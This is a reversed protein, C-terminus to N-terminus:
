VRNLSKKIREKSIKFYKEDIEVGIFNRKLEVAAVGCSGVGMFPDLVVGNERSAIKILHKLLKVPKQAPHSPNKVRESGMCKPSEYFNHMEKQSLFNWEHGRNWMCVVFECSNLFGNKRFKPTPNTKHWVFIQFTDFERDFCEHWKGIMNYACFSFLNGNPKLVRLFEDKFRGPDFGEDWQAIDNNIEKRNSSTINGRSYERLNYPPDTLILDVSNDELKKLAELADSHYLATEM